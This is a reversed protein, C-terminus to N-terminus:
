HEYLPYSLCQVFSNVTLPSLCNWICWVDNIYTRRHMNFVYVRVSEFMKVCGRVRVTVFQHLITNCMCSIVLFCQVKCIVFIFMNFCERVRVTVAQYLITYFMFSVLLVNCRVRCFPYFAILCRVLNKVNMPLFRIWFYRIGEKHTLWCVCFVNLYAQIFM